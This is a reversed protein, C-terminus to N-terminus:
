FKKTESKADGKVEDAKGKAKGWWSSSKADADTGLDKASQKADEATGKASAFLSLSKDKAENAKGETQSLLRNSEGKADAYLKGSENKAEGFYKKAELKAKEAEAETKHAVSKVQDPRLLYWALGAVTAGGIVLFTTNSGSKVPETAYSRSQRPVSQAQRNFGRTLSRCALPRMM